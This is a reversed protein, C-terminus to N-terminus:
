PDHIGGKLEGFYSDFWEAESFTGLLEIVSFTPHEPDEYDIELIISTVGCPLMQLQQAMPPDHYMPDVGGHFWKTAYFTDRGWHGWIDFIVTGNIDKYTSVVAYGTDESSAYSNKNWCSKAVVEGSWMEDAFMPIGYFADSFDNVYWGLANALPGGVSIINSSAVPWTTCWDDKLATRHDGGAHDYHYDTAADGEGFKALVYPIQNAIVPDMIDTGAFGIEIAKDKFTSTVLAAGVSDVSAADRGVITWEYRGTLPVAFVEDWDMDKMYSSWLIKLYQDAEVDFLLTVNMFGDWLYDVGPYLLVADPMLLIREAFSCYADWAPM